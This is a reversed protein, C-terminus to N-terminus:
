QYEKQKRADDIGMKEGEERKKDERKQRTALLQM